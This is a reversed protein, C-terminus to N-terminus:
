TTEVDAGCVILVSREVGGGDGLVCAGCNNYQVPGQSRDAITARMGVEAAAREAAYLKGSGSPGVVALLSSGSWENM